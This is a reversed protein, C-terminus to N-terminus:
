GENERHEGRGRRHIEPQPEAASREGHYLALEGPGM